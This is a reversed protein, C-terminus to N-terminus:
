ALGIDRHQKLLAYLRSRSLGSMRCADRINGRSFSMLDHLYRREAEALMAARFDGLKPFEGTFSSGTGEAKEEGAQVEEGTRAEKGIAARAAHVRIYTPLHKPFLFRDHGAAALTRELTNVLERVNGPWPYTDLVDFFEPSLEKIAMGYRNCLRDLHYRVLERIDGSRDRLPPLEIVFSRLRFLLDKRFQGNQVMQDLDRNTAAVLRFDSAIEQKGGLPRFHHEQLVRLFTKQLSLPLEGVEDLFLTGGDAQRILGDRTKDAGTFAGKEYGFLVSEVLTEPLATCDVVVFNNQARRSNEHIARAFLEKGTGTEGIILIGAESGAAQALLDFCARMQPSNGIIGELKLAAAPKAAKKEQRYQLARFLPATITNIASPKELYDWAGCKIALEAGDPDGAGTIVIVEPSSPTARLKPLVDLGNGDPMQVDLFAVDIAESAAKKLGDELTNACTVKCGKRRVVCSLMECIKQDDDIILVKAM